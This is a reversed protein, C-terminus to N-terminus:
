GEEEEDSYFTENLMLINPAPDKEGEQEEEESCDSERFEQEHMRLGTVEYLIRRDILSTEPEFNSLM